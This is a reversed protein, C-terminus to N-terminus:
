NNNFKKVDQSKKEEELRRFFEKFYKKPRAM